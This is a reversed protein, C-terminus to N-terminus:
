KSNGNSQNGLAIGLKIKNKRVFEWEVLKRKSKTGYRAMNELVKLAAIYHTICVDCQLTLCSKQTFLLKPNGHFNM